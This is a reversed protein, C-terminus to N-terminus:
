SFLFRFLIKGMRVTGILLGSTGFLLLLENIASTPPPQIAETPIIPVVGFAVSGSVGSGYDGIGYDGKGYGKADAAGVLLFFGMAVALLLGKMNM